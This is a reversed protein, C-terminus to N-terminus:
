KVLVIIFFGLAQPKPMIAAGIWDSSGATHIKHNLGISVERHDPVVPMQSGCSRARVWGRFTGGSLVESFATQHNTLKNTEFHIM